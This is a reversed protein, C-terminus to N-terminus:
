WVLKKPGLLTFGPLTAFGGNPDSLIDPYTGSEAHYSTYAHAIGAVQVFGESRRSRAQYQNFNPIAIAALVGILACTIMLETLTFGGRRRSRLPVRMAPLEPDPPPPLSDRSVPGTSPRSCRGEVKEQELAVRKPNLVREP